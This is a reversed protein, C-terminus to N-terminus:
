ANMLKAINELTPMALKPLFVQKIQDMTANAAESGCQGRFWTLVADAPQGSAIAGEIRTVIRAVIPDVVPFATQPQPPPTFATPQFAAQQAPPMIPAPAQQGAVGAIAEGDDGEGKKGRTGKLSGVFEKVEAISDFCLKM